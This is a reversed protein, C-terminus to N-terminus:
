KKDVEKPFFIDTNIIPMMVGDLVTGITKLIFFGRTTSVVIGILNAVIVNPIKGEFDKLIDELNFIEFEGSSSLDGLLISKEPDAYFNTNLDIRILKKSPNVHVGLNFEFQINDKNLGKKKLKEPLSTQAHFDILKLDMIKFTLSIEQLLKEKM